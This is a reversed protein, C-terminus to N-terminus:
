TLFPLLPEEPLGVGAHSVSKQFAPGMSMTDSPSLCTNMYSVVSSGHTPDQGGVRLADGPQPSGLHTPDLCSQRLRAGRQSGRRMTCVHISTTSPSRMSFM